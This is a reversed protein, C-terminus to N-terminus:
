IPKKGRGTRNPTNVSINKPSSGQAARVALVILGRNQIGGVIVAAPHASAPLAIVATLAEAGILAGYEVGGQDHLLVARALFEVPFLEGVPQAQGAGLAGNGGPLDVLKDSLDFGGQLLKATGFYGGAHDAIHGDGSQFFEIVDGVDTEGDDVELHVVQVLDAVLDIGKQFGLPVAM